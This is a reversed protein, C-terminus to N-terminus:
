DEFLKELDVEVKPPKKPMFDRLKEMSKKIRSDKSSRRIHKNSKIVKSQVEKAIYAGRMGQLQEKSMIDKEATPIQPLVNKDNRTHRKQKPLKEIGQFHTEFNSV